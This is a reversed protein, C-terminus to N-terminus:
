KKSSSRSGKGPTLKLHSRNKWIQNRRGAPQLKSTRKEASNMYIIVYRPPQHQGTKCDFKNSRKFDEDDSVSLDLEEQKENEIKRSTDLPPEMKRKQSTNNKNPCQFNRIQRTNEDDDDKDTIGRKM